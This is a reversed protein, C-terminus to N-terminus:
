EKVKVDFLPQNQLNLLNTEFKVKLLNFVKKAILLSKKNLKNSLKTRNLEDPSVILCYTRWEILFEDIRTRTSYIREYPLLKLIKNMAFCNLCYLITFLDSEEIM